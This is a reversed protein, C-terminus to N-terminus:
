RESVKEEDLGDPFFFQSNDQVTLTWIQRLWRSMGSSSCLKRTPIRLWNKFHIGSGAGRVLLLHLLLPLMGWVVEEEWGRVLPVPSVWWRRRRELLAVESLPGSAAAMGKTKGETRWQFCRPSPTLPPTLPDPQACKLLMTHPSSMRWWVCCVSGGWCLKGGLELLTLLQLKCFFRLSSPGGSGLRMMGSFKGFFLAKGFLGSFILIM